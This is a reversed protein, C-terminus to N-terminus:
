KAEGVAAAIRALAHREIGRTINGEPSGAGMIRAQAKLRGMEKLAAIVEDVQEQARSTQTDMM